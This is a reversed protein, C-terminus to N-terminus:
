PKRPKRRDWRRLFEIWMGLLVLILFAAGAIMLWAQIPIPHIMDVILM